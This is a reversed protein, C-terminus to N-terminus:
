LMGGKATGYSQMMLSMEFIEVRIIWTRVWSSGLIFRM